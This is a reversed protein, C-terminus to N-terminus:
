LYFHRLVFRGVSEGRREERRIRERERGSRGWVRERRRRFRLRLWFWLGGRRERERGSGDWVSERRRRFRM